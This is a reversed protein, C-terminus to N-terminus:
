TEKFDRECLRGRTQTTLSTRRAVHGRLNQPLLAIARTHVPPSQAAAHVLHQGGTQRKFVESFLHLYLLHGTASQIVVDLKFVSAKVSGAFVDDAAEEPFLRLIAEPEPPYFFFVNKLVYLLKHFSTTIHRRWLIFMVDLFHTIYAANEM